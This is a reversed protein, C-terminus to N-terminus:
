CVAGGLETVTAGKLLERERKSASFLLIQVGNAAIASLENLIHKLRNEDFYVLAEDLILPVKINESLRKHLALRLCLWALDASGGSFYRSDTVGEAGNGLYSLNMESDLRLQPYRGDTIKSFYASSHKSLYPSVTQRINKEASELAEMALLIASHKETYEKLQAEENEIDFTIREIDLRNAGSAALSLNIENRRQSADYLHKELSHIYEDTVSSLDGQAASDAPLERAANIEKESYQDLYALLVSRRSEANSKEKKLQELKSFYVRCDEIAKNSTPRNWKKLLEQESLRIGQLKSKTDDLTEILYKSNGGLRREYDDCEKCVTPVSRSKTAKLAASIKKIKKSPFSAAIASIVSLPASIGFVTFLLENSPKFLNLFSGILAFLSILAVFATSFFALSLMGHRAQSATFEPLIAEKKGMECYADYGKPPVISLELRVKEIQKEINACQETYIRIEKDISVLKAAYESDPIFAGYSYEKKLAESLVENKNLDSNAKDLNDLYLKIRYAKIKALAERAEDLQKTILSVNKEENQLDLTLGEIEKKVSLGRERREKLQRLRQESEFIRGGQGKKLKLEKRAADLTKKAQKLNLAEDGSLLLNSVAEASGGDLRGGSAQSVYLSRTYLAPPVGLFYEGPTEFETKWESFEDGSDENYVTVARQRGSDRRDIRYTNGLHEIILSGASNGTKLSSHREKEKPDSFGYFVYKIFACLTSKGSENEGTLLNFGPALALKKDRAGGFEEIIVEKIYM